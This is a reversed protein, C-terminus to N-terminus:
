FPFAKEKLPFLKGRAPSCPYFLGAQRCVGGAVPADACCEGWERGREPCLLAFAVRGKRASVTLQFVGNESVSRETQEMIPNSLIRNPIILNFFKNKM